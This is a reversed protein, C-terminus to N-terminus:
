RLERLAPPCLVAVDDSWELRLELRTLRTALGLAAATSDPLQMVETLQKRDHGGDVAWKLRQGQRHDLVLTRLKPLLLVM